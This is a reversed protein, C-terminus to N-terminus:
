VRVFEKRYSTKEPTTSQSELRQMDRFQSEAVTSERMELGTELQDYKAYADSIAANVVSLPHAQLAKVKHLIKFMQDTIQRISEYNNSIRVNRSNPTMLVFADLFRVERREQLQNIRLLTQRHFKDLVPYTFQEVAAIRRSEEKRWAERVYDRQSRFSILEAQLAPLRPSDAERLVVTERALDICIRDLRLYENDRDVFTKQFAQLEEFAKQSRRESDDLLQNLAKM